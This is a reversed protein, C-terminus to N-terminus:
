AMDLGIDLSKVTHTLAGIAILDVGTEATERVTDLNVGGSAQTIVRGKAENVCKRLEEPTMNDLLVSDAGGHDLVELLQEYSDVEIEVKVMHGAGSRALEIARAPSGALAIHNDKILIGDDLGHRHNFGGGTRVAYKQLPRLGPMTKRTCIIAAGTGKIAEVYKATQTAIGSMMTIFNLATREATLIARASGKVTLIVEEAELKEGDSKHPTFQLTEETLGFAALACPLGALIGPERARLAASAKHDEPILLESTVDHGHGLDELLAKRVTDEIILQPLKM